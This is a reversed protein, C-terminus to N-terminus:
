IKIIKGKILIITYISIILMWTWYETRLIPTLRFRGQQPIKKLNILWRPVSSKYKLYSEGFKEELFKEEAPIVFFNYFAIYISITIITIIITIVIGYGGFAFIVLGSAILTNAIYVPNRTYRYPGATILNAINPTEDRSKVGLYGLCITRLIAGILILITGTILSSINPNALIITIIALPIPFLARYRFGLTSVDKM